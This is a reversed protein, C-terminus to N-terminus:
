NGIMSSVIYFASSGNPFKITKDIGFDMKRALGGYKSDEIIYLLGPNPVSQIEDWGGFQYKDFSYVLNYSRSEDQNYVVTKQFDKPSVRMYYLFFIYPQSRVDTMYVRSYSPNSKVFEVIQKMGYQWDAGSDIAYKTFYDNLYVKLSLGLIILFIVLILNRLRVKKISQLITFAGLASVIQMNGMMFLARTANPAGQVLSSPLPSIILWLLLVLSIKSRLKILKILGILLFLLDIKYFEGVTKVSNRPSQDGKIFLYDLSFHNPYQRLGIELQALIQNKFLKYTTTAEIKEQPFKTQGARALGLLRPQILLMLIFLCFIIVGTYFFNKIIILKKFYLATIVVVIVPVVLKSSHYSILSLGFSLYSFVIFWKQVKSKKISGDLRRIQLHDIQPKILEDHNKSEISKFFCFLGFIFFFLAFNTEWLGRSFHINYPSIALFLAALIALYFNRFLTLVLLFIAIVSLVGFTAASSRVVFDSVGFLKIFLATIYIHVPHKDDLFSRFVIPFKEGWEDIGFNAISYANYAADVEDWNLAPPVQDLKYFRLFSALIIVLSLILIKLKM